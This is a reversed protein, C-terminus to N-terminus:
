EGWYWLEVGFNTRIINIVDEKKIKNQEIFNNISHTATISGFCDFLECKIKM